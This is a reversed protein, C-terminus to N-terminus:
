GTKSGDSKDALYRYVVLKHLEGVIRPSGWTPNSRWMDQILMRVEKAIPPRGPKGQQSLRWWHTRFRKRQWAIVTRPQIFAL